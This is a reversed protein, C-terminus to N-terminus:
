QPRVLTETPRYAPIAQQADDTVRQREALFAGLLDRVLESRTMGADKAARDIAALAEHDVRLCFQASPHKDV